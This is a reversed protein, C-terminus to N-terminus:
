ECKRSFHDVVNRAVRRNMGPLRSLQELTAARMIKVSGFNQLLVQRRREGIGDISELESKLSERSRTRRHFTIAFRHAEDRIRMLLFLLDKERELAIPNMRGPTYVKDWVEGGRTKKKALSIIDFQGKLGLEDVVTVAVNLQGKGGDIIVLNPSPEKESLRGAFRRKLVNHMYRYDDPEGAVEDIRFRRYASKQPRGKEFVAMGAAPYKGAINSNDFCEIRNPTYQLKLKHQLRDMLIVDAQIKAVHDKFAQDTNHEAMNLLRAKAGRQPKVVHVKNGRRESLWAGLLELDSMTEGVLVEKPIANTREYYQRMFQSLAVGKHEMPLEYHYFQSGLLYGSRVSLLGFTCYTGNEALAIADRDKFDTSVVVQKELTKELAFMKDRLQAAREFDQDHAAQQMQMKVTKILTSTRGKLFLSVEKVVADYVGPKLDFCCPAMCTGMQHHLCPRKRTAFDRPKCKRLKFTKNIFKLTQRVALASAFPGFYVCGKVNTRRVIKLRPFPHGTNLCLSPYRKDDKLIVNYKPKHQKILNSELILAEKESHTILTEFEAIHHLMVQTKTSKPHPHSFYTGLRKRLDRAKGVYIVRRSADKMMYVGPSHPVQDLAQNFTDPQSQQTSPM